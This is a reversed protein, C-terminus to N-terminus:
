RYEQGQLHRMTKAPEDFLMPLLIPYAAVNEEFVEALSAFAREAQAGARRGVSELEAPFTVRFHDTELSRWSDDPPVQASPSPGTWAVVPLVTLLVRRTWRSKLVM